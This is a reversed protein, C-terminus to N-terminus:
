ELDEEEEIEDGKQAISENDGQYADVGGECGGM